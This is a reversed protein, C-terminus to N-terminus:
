AALSLFGVGARWMAATIYTRRVYTPVAFVCMAAAAAAPLCTLRSINLLTAPHRM